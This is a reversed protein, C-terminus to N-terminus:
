NSEWYTSADALKSDDDEYVFRAWIKDLIQQPDCRVGQRIFYDCVRQIDRQLIEYADPNVRSGVFHTESSVASNVVQPFDILTIDGNWYLINYASLDGHIRGYRLMLSINEMTKRFLPLVEAQELRVANLTPAAGHADGVYGMLIANDSAAIPKPVAAGVAYLFELTTYEYMLWSTHAVQAGFTTKKGLARLLRTDSAKVPRGDNTLTPRGQRYQKDNRLNRFIRPRYVKAALWDVGAAPHAACRYVNAEKGGKIQAEVDDILEQNYFDQLSNLLWGEEHQSPTYTTQFGGELGITEAVEASSEKLTKKDVHVKPKRKRRAQRDNRIPDLADEYAAYVEYYDYKDMTLSPEKKQWPNGRILVALQLLLLLLM